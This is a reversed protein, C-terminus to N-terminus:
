AIRYQSLFVGTSVLIAGTEEPLQVDLDRTTLQIRVQAGNEATSAM